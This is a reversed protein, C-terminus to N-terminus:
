ENISFRRVLNEEFHSVPSVFWAVHDSKESTNGCYPYDLKIEPKLHLITLNALNCNLQPTNASCAM